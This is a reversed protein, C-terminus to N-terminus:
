RIEFLTNFDIGTYHLISIAISSFYILNTTIKHFFDHYLGRSMMQVDGSLGESSKEALAQAQGVFLVERLGPLEGACLLHCDDAGAALDSHRDEARETLFILDLDRHCVCALEAYDANDTLGSVKGAGGAACESAGLALDLDVVAHDNGLAVDMKGGIGSGLVAYLVLLDNLDGYAVVSALEHEVVNDNAYRGLEEGSDM